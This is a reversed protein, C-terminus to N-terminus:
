SASQVLHEWRLGDGLALPRVARAGLITPWFRPHLGPALNRESRLVRLNHPGLTEGVAITRVAHVSRKDGPYLPRESPMIEKRGHGLIAIGSDEGFYRGVAALRKERPVMGMERVIAAMQRMEDPELAFPHDPGRLDRSLTIHKEILCAGAAVAVAPVLEPDTTHDSFGVPLGFARELTEIVALNSEEPPCPYASVCHLLVVEALPNVARIQGLAEEIDALTSIGSSCVLPRGTAAAAALLPLHNLEPSAIKFGDVGLRDLWEVAELDFPSCLFLLGRSEAHAKLEPLWAPPLQGERVVEFFDVRGMPTEVMGCTPPYMWESRFLQFKVAEWGADATADILERALGPDGNHNSGAEAVLLVPEDAGVRRTGLTVVPDTLTLPM